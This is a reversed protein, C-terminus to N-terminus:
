EDSDGKLAASCDCEGDNLRGIGGTMRLSCSLLHRKNGSEDAGKIAALEKFLKAVRNGDHQTITSAYCIIADTYPELEKIAARLRENEATLRADEELLEIDRALPERLRENEAKLLRADDVATQMQRELEVIRQELKDWESEHVSIIKSV